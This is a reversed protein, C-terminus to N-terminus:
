SECVTTEVSIVGPVGCGKSLSSFSAAENWVRHSDSFEKVLPIAATDVLVTEQGYMGTLIPCVM